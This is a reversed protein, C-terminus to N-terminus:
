KGAIIGPPIRTTRRPIEGSFFWLALLAAFLLALIFTVYVNIIYLLALFACTFGFFFMWRIKGGFLVKTGDLGGIPLLSFFAFWANFIAFDKLTDFSTASYIAGAMFALFLNTMPGALAIIAIERDQMEPFWRGIRREATWKLEFTEIMFLKLKGLTLFAAAVPLVLWIPFPHRFESDEFLWYRKWELLKFKAESIYYRAAIKHSIVHPVIILISFILALLFGALTFNSFAILYAVLLIAFVLHAAERKEFM